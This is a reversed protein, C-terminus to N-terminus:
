AEGARWDIGPPTGAQALAGHLPEDPLERELIQRVPVLRLPDIGTPLGCRECLYVLDEFVVNGTAGPAFPCGGLGGITGDLIRIGAEIAAYANAIGTGLTDHLYVKLPFDGFEDVLQGCIGAFGVTDAVALAEAGAEACAGILRLM